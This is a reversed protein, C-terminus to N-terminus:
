HNCSSSNTVVKFFFKGNEDFYQTIRTIGLDLIDKTECQKENQFARIQELEEENFVRGKLTVEGNIFWINNHFYSSTWVENDGVRRPLSTDNLKKVTEKILRRSEADLALSTQPLLLFVFLGLIRIM